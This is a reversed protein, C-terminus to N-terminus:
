ENPSTENSSAEEKEEAVAEKTPRTSVKKQESKPLRSKIVRFESRSISYDAYSLFRIEIGVAHSPVFKLLRQNM